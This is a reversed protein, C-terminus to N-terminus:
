LSIISPKIELFVLNIICKPLGYPENVVKTSYKSHFSLILKLMTRIYPKM